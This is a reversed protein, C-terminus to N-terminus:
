LLYSYAKCRDAEVQEKTLLTFTTKKEKLGFTKENEIVTKKKKM